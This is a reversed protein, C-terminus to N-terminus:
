SLIRATSPSVVTLSMMRLNTSSYKLLYDDRISGRIPKIMLGFIQPRSLAVQRIPDSPYKTAM